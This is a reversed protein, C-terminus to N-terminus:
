HRELWIQRIIRYIIDHCWKSGLKLIQPKIIGTTDKVENINSIIEMIEKYQPGETENAQYNYKMYDKLIRMENEKQNDKYLNKWFEM